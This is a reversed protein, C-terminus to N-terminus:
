IELMGTRTLLWGRSCKISQVQFLADFDDWKQLRISAELEYKVVEFHKLKLDTLTDDEVSGSEM